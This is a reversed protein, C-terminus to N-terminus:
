RFLPAGIAQFGAWSRPSRLDPDGSAMMEMKAARLAAAPASGQQLHRHFAIMLHFSAQDDVDWLSAVVSPVGAALLPTVLSVVGETRSIPGAATSCASLVALRTQWPGTDLMEHVHLAGSENGGPGPALVLTSRFPDEPHLLAHGTFHVIGYKPAERLFAARTAEDGDLVTASRGYLRAIQYAERRAYPLAGLDSFVERDFRPEAVALLTPATGELRRAREVCAALVSLSPAVATVRSRALYRGTAPDILADFALAHLSGDPIFVLLDDSRLHRVLPQVLTRYLEVSLRRVDGDDRNGLANRWAAVQSDIEDRQVALSELAVGDRHSVWVLTRDEQVLYEIAAVGPPLTERLERAPRPRGAAAVPARPAASPALAALDSLRDALERARGQEAADLAAEAGRRNTIRLDVMEDFARRTRDLFSIRLPAEAVHSRQREIEDLAESLDAEAAVPDGLARHARARQVRLAAAFYRDSAQAIADDLAALAGAPDSEIRIVAEASRIEYFAARRGSEDPLLRVQAEAQDLDGLAGELDGLRQRIVAQQRLAAALGEPKGSRRALEVAESQLDLAAAPQGMDLAARSAEGLIVRLRKTDGMEVLGRLALLRHRWANDRDGLFDLTSALLTHVYAEHGSEGLAHYIELSRRLAALAESAEARYLRLTGTLWAARARLSQYGRQRAVEDLVALEALARDHPEPELLMYDRRARQFRVWLAFPSGATELDEVAAELLPGAKDTDEEDLLALAQGFTLHGRALRTRRDGPGQSQLLEVCELLMRDGSRALGQSIAHAIRLTAAARLEDGAAVARGWEALLEEEGYLRAWQPSRAAIAAARGTEGRLAAARLAAKRGEWLDRETPADKKALRASAEASWPSSPDLDLYRTWVVRAARRLFLRELAIARNFYAEPLASDNAIAQDAAALALILHRPNASAAALQSAALDSWWRADRSARRTAQTLWEIASDAKGTLLELAGRNALDEASGRQVAEAEIRGRLRWLGDARSMPETSFPAYEFGVLRGESPRQDMAASILLDRPASPSLVWWLSAAAVFAGALSLWRFRRRVHTATDLM